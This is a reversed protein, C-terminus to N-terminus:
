NQTGHETGKKKKNEWSKQFATLYAVLKQKEKDEKKIEREEREEDTLYLDFPEKLYDNVKHHKKDFHLNSIATSVAHFHYLGQEYNFRNQRKLKLVYAKRYAEALYVDGEWFESPTM